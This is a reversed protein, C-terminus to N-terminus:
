GYFHSQAHISAVYYKVKACRFTILVGWCLCNTMSKGLGCQGWVLLRRVVLVTKFCRFVNALFSVFNFFLILAHFTVQTWRLHSSWMEGRKWYLTCHDSHDRFHSCDVCVIRKKPLTNGRLVALPIGRSVTWMVGAPQWLGDKCYPSDKNMILNSKNRM